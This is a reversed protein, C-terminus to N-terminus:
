LYMGYAIESIKKPQKISDISNIIDQYEIKIQKENMFNMKMLRFFVNQKLIEVTLKIDAGSFNKMEESIRDMNIEHSLVANQFHEKLYFSFLNKREKLTPLEIEIQQDFRGKVMFKPNLLDLRKNTMALIIINNYRMMKDLEKMFDNLFLQFPPPLDESFNLGIQDFDDIIMLYLPSKDGWKKYSNISKKAISKFPNRISEINEKIITASKLYVVFEDSIGLLSGLSKAFTTKGTGEPGRLLFAKPLNMKTHKLFELVSKDKFRDYSEKIKKFVLDYGILGRKEFEESIRDLSLIREKPMIHCNSRPQSKFFIHSDPILKGLYSESLVKLPDDFSIEDVTIEFKENELEIEIVQNKVFSLVKHERLKLELDIELVAQKENKETKFRVLFCIAKIPLVEESRLLISELPNQIVLNLETSEHLNWCEVGFSKEENLSKMAQGSFAEEFRLLYKGTLLDVQFQYGLPVAQMLKLRSSLEEYLIWPKVQELVKVIKFSAKDASYLSNGILLIENKPSLFHIETEKNVKLGEKLVSIDGSEGFHGNMSDLSIKYVDGEIKLDIQFGFYFIKDNLIKTLQNLVSEYTLIKSTTFKMENQKLYIFFCCEVLKKNTNEKVFPIPSVIKNIKINTNEGIMGYHNKYYRFGKFGFCDKVAIQFNNYQSELHFMQGVAIIKNSLARKFLKFFRDYDYYCQNSIINQLNLDLEITSIHHIESQEVFFPTYYISPTANQYNISAIVENFVSPYVCIEGRNINRVGVEYVYNAIKIYKPFPTKFDFIEEFDELHLYVLNKEYDEVDGQLILNAYKYIKQDIKSFEIKRKKLHDSELNGVVDASRKGIPNM